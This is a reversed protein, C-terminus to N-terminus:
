GAGSCQATFTRGAPSGPDNFPLYHITEVKPHDRLFEAVAKANSNAREMRIQLAELRVGDESPVQTTAALPVAPRSYSWWGWLVAALVLGAISIILVTARSIRRPQSKM